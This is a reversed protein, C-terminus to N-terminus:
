FEDTPVMVKSGCEECPTVAREYTEGCRSCEYQEEQAAGTSGPLLRGLTGTIDM